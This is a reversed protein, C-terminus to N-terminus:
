YEGPRSLRERWGIRMFILRLHAHLKFPGVSFTEMVDRLLKRNHDIEDSMAQHVLFAQVNNMSSWKNLSAEIRRVVRSQVHSYSLSDIM